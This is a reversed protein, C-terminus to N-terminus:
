QAPYPGSSASSDRSRALASARRAPFLHHRVIVSGRPRGTACPQVRTPEAPVRRLARGAVSGPSPGVVLGRSPDAVPRRLPGAALGRSPGVVLGRSPDGVPGESPGAVPGPSLDGALERSPGVVGDGPTGHDKVM